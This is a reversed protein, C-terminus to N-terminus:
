KQDLSEMGNLYVSLWPQFVRSPISNNLAFFNVQISDVSLSPLTMKKIIKFINLFSDM